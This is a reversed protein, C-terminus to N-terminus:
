RGHVAEKVDALRSAAILLRDIDADKGALIDCAVLAAIGAESAALDILDGANFPRRDPKRGAGPTSDRPPFLDAIDLGVAGVVDGVECGARCILLLAGDDRERVSLSPHRDEHAPCCAIWKGPGTRKVGSLAPLFKDAATM